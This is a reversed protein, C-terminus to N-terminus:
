EEVDKQAREKVRKLYDKKVQEENYLRKTVDKTIQSVESRSLSRKM